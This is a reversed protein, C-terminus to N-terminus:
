GSEGHQDFNMWEIADWVKECGIREAASTSSSSARLHIAEPMAEGAAAGAGTSSVASILGGCFLARRVAAL